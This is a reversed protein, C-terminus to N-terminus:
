NSREVDARIKEDAFLVERLAAASPMDFTNM